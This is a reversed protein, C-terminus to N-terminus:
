QNVTWQLKRHRKKHPYDPLTAITVYAYGVFDESEIPILSATPGDPKHIQVPQLLRKREATDAYASHTLMAPDRRLLLPDNPWAYEEQNEKDAISKHLSSLGTEREVEIETSTLKASKLIAAVVAVPTSPHPVVTPLFLSDSTGGDLAAEDIALSINFALANEDFSAVSVSNFEPYFPIEEM